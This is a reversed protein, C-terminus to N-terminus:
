YPRPGKPKRKNKRKKKPKPEDLDLVFAKGTVGNLADLVSQKIKTAM